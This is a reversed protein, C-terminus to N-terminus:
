GVRLINMDFNRPPVKRDVLQTKSACLASEHRSVFDPIRAAEFHGDQALEKSACLARIRAVMLFSVSRLGEPPRKVGRGNQAHKKFNTFSIRM